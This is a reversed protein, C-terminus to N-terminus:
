RTTDRENQQTRTCGHLDDGPDHEPGPVPSREDADMARDAHQEHEEEPRDGNHRHHLAGAAAEGETVEEIGGEHPVGRVDPRRAREREEREGSM